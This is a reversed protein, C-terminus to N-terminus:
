FFLLAIPKERSFDHTKSAYVHVTQAFHAFVPASFNGMYNPWAAAWFSEWKTHFKASREAVTIQSLCSFGWPTRVGKYFSLPSKKQVGM